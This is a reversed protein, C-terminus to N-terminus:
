PTAKRFVLKLELPQLLSDHELRWTVLLSGDPQRQYVEVIHGSGKAAKEEVLLREGVWHVTAKRLVGGPGQRSSERGFYYTRIEDGLGSKFEKASQEITLVLAGPQDAQRLLWSRIWLRPSDKRIDGQSSASGLSAVIKDHVNDSQPPQFEWRGSLDPEARLSPPSALVVSSAVLLAGLVRRGPRRHESKM